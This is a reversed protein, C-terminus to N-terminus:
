WVLLIWPWRYLVNAYKGPKDKFLGKADQAALLLYQQLAMQDFLWDGNDEAQEDVEPAELQWRRVLESHALPQGTQKISILDLIPFAAAQWFSYCSDVLKNTRGQFGHEPWMQRQSIWHQQTNFADFLSAFFFQVFSVLFYYM